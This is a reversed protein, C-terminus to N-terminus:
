KLFVWNVTEPFTDSTLPVGVAVAELVYGRHAEKKQLVFIPQLNFFRSFGAYFKFVGLGYSAPEKRGARPCRKAVLSM